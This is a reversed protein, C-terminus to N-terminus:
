QCKGVVEIDDLYVGEYNNAFGTITDFVFQIRVKKSAFAALSVRIFSFDNTNCLEPYGATSWVEFEKGDVLVKVSLVDSSAVQETQKWLYFRLEPEWIQSFGLDGTTATGGVPQSFGADYTHTSPDGFYLSNPPSHARKGDVVWHPKTQPYLSDLSLGGSTGDDFNAFFLTQICCEPSSILSIECMGKQAGPPVKCVGKKCPDNVICDEDSKCCAPVPINECINNKCVDNTCANGDDCHEPAVCCGKTWQYECQQKYNCYGITCPNLDECDEDKNCCGANKYVCRFDVCRDETCPNGDLCDNDTECCGHAGGVVNTHNCRNASCFDLTCFNNDDCEDDSVCCMPDYVNHVCVHSLCQDKTCPNKDDCEADSNCCGPKKEHKCGGDCYDDTCINGDDCNVPNHSCTGNLCLDETCPDNDDCDSHGLCQQASAEVFLDNSAADAGDGGAGVGSSCSGLVVLVVLLKIPRVM